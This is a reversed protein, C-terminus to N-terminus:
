ILFLSTQFRLNSAYIKCTLASVKHNDEVYRVVVNGMPLTLACLIQCLGNDLLHAILVRDLISYDVLCFTSSLPFLFFSLAMKEFNLWLSWWNFSKCHLYFPPGQNSWFCIFLLLTSHCGGERGKFRRQHWAKGSYL